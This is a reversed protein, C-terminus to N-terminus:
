HVSPSWTWTRVLIIMLNWWRRARRWHRPPVYLGRDGRDLRYRTEAGKEDVLVVDFAGNIAVIFEEQTKYAHGGRM